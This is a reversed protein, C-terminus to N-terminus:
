TKLTGGALKALRRKFEPDRCAKWLIASLRELRAVEFGKSRLMELFCTEDGIVIKAKSAVMSEIESLVSLANEIEGLELFSQGLLTLATYVTTDDREAKGQTIAAKLRPIARLHDKAGHHLIMATQLKAYASRALREREISLDEAKLFLNNVCYLEILESLVLRIDPEREAASKAELLLKEAAPFNHAAILDAVLHPLEEFNM